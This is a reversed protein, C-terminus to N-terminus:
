NIAVERVKYLEDDEKFRNNVINLVENEVSKYNKSFYSAFTFYTLDNEPFSITYEIKSGLKQSFQIFFTRDEMTVTLTSELPLFYRLAENFIANAPTLLIRELLEKNM